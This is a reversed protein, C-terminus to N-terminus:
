KLYESDKWVLSNKKMTMKPVGMDDVEKETEIESNLNQCQGTSIDMRSCMTTAGGSFFMYLKGDIARMSYPAGMCKENALTNVTVGNLKVSCVSDRDMGQDPYHGTVFYATDGDITYIYVSDRCVTEVGSGDLKMRCLPTVDKGESGSLDVYYLYGDCVSLQGANGRGKMLLDTDGNFDDELLTKESGDTKIKYLGARSEDYDMKTGDTVYGNDVYYIWGDSMVLEKARVNEDGVYEINGGNKSIRVIRYNFAQQTAMHEPSYAVNAYVYDSDCQFCRLTTVYRDGNKLISNKLQDESVWVEFDATQEDKVTLKCLQSVNDKYRGYFTDGDQAMFYSDFKNLGDKDTPDTFMLLRNRQSDDLLDVEDYKTNVYGAYSGYSTTPFANPQSSAYGPGNGGSGGKGLGFWHFIFACAVLAGIIVVAAAIVPIIVKKKSNKKDEPAANPVFTQADPQTNISEVDPAAPEVPPATKTEVSPAPAPAPTCNPCLGNENLPSGCKGCFKAM